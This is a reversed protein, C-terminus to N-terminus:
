SLACGHAILILFLSFAFPLAGPKNREAHNKRQIRDHIRQQILLVVCINRQARQKFVILGAFDGCIRRVANLLRRLAHRVASVLKPGARDVRNGVAHLVVLIVVRLM